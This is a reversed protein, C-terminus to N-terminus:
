YSAKEAYNGRKIRLHFCAHKCCLKWIRESGGFEFYGKGELLHSEPPMDEGKTLPKSRYHRIAIAINQM